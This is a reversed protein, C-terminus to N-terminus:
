TKMWTKQEVATIRSGLVVFPITMKFGRGWASLIEGGPAGVGVEGVREHDIDM